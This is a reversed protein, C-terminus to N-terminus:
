RSEKAVQRAVAAMAAAMESAAPTLPGDKRTFMGFTIRPVLDEIRIQQLFGHAYREGLLQPVLLGLTDTSALVALGITYSECEVIIRPPPLGAASYMHVLNRTPGPSAFTVWSADALDRLSKAKALPHGRRCAVVMRATHLPKFRVAADLRAPLKRGIAFDLTSDRVMPLLTDSMGEVLRVRGNPYRQRFRVLADPVLLVSAAPAVGVIVSGGRDGRLEDLDDEIRKLEAHIVRARALVAKGARTAVAGRGSRQLLQV